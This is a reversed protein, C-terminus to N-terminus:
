FCLQQHYELSLLQTDRDFIQIAEDCNVNLFTHQSSNGRGNYFVKLVQKPSAEGRQLMRQLCHWIVAQDWMENFHPEEDETNDQWVHLSDEEGEVEFEFTVARDHRRLFGSVEPASARVRCIVGEAVDEIDAADDEEGIPVGDDEGM